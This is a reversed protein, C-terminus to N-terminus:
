RSYHMSLKEVEEKTIEPRHQRVAVFFQEPALESIRSRVFERVRTDLRYGLRQALDMARFAQYHPFASLYGDCNFAIIKQTIDRVALHEVLRGHDLDFFCANLTFVTTLPLNELKTEFLGLRFAYTRELEWYDVTLGGGIQQRHGGFNNKLPEDPTDGLKGCVVLDIDRSHRKDRHVVEDIRDRVFGGFIVVPGQASLSRVLEALQPSAAVIRDFELRVNHESDSRISIDLRNLSDM